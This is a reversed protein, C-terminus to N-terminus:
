VTQLEKSISGFLCYVDLNGHMTMFFQKSIMRRLLESAKESVKKDQSGVRKKLAQINTEMRKEFKEISGEFYASFRTDSMGRLKYFKKGM